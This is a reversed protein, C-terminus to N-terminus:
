EMNFLLEMKEQDWEHGDLEDATVAFYRFQESSGRDATADFYLWTDDIKAANWLHDEGNSVGSVM